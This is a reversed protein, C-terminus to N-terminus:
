NGCKPRGRIAGWHILGMFGAMVLAELVSFLLRMSM